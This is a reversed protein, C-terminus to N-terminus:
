QNPGIQAPMQVTAFAETMADICIDSIQIHEPDASISAVDIEDVEDIKKPPGRSKQKKWRKNPQQKKLERGHCKYKWPSIKGCRNCLSDKVPCSSQGPSHSKM